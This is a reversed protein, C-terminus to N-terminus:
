QQIYPAIFDKVKVYDLRTIVARQTCSPLRDDIFMEGVSTGILYPKGDRLVFIPGGSDGGCVNEEATGRVELSNHLIGALPLSVSKLYTAKTRPNASILGYGLILLREGLELSQFDKFITAPVFPAPADKAITVVAIDHPAGRRFAVEASYDPHIKVGSTWWLTVNSPKSNDAGFAVYIHMEDYEVGTVGDVCHAATLIARKSILVGSCRAEHVPKGNKYYALGVYVTSRAPISMPDTRTGGIISGNTEEFSIGEHRAENCGLFLILSLSIVIKKM